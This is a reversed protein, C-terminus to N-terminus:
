RPAPRQEDARLSSGSSIRLSGAATDARLSGGGHHLESGRPVLEGAEADSRLAPLTASQSAPAGVSSRSDSAASVVAFDVAGPASALEGGLDYRASFASIAGLRGPLQYFLHAGVHGVKALSSAWYPVVYDAHYHTALGVGPYITGELAERAIRRARAWGRVSPGRALSGDCTFTFQCGTARAVGQYVVGCVTHPFAPHRVRNLVVQAVARAGDDGQNGAEYFVAQALCRLAAAFAPSGDDREPMAFPRAPHPRAIDVPRADNLAKAEPEAIPLVAPDFIVSGPDHDYAAVNGARQPRDPGPLSGRFPLWGALLAAALAALLAAVAFRSARQAPRDHRGREGPLARTILRM